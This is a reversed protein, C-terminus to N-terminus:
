KHEWDPCNDDTWGYPHMGCVLLNGSYIRGHYHRCGICAPNKDLNPQERHIGIFDLEESFYDLNDAREIDELIIIETEISVDILTEVIDEVCKDIESVLSEQLQEVFDEITEEVENTFLEVADGIDEILKEIDSATKELIEWWNKQWDEM